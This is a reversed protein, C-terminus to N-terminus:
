ITKLKVINNVVDIIENNLLEKELQIEYPNASIIANIINMHDTESLKPIEILTNKTINRIIIDNNVKTIKLVCKEDESMELIFQILSYIDNANHNSHILGNVLGVVEDWNSILESLKFRFLADVSYEYIDRLAIKVMSIEHTRDCYVLASLLASNLYSEENFHIKKYLYEYKIYILISDIIINELLPKVIYLNEENTAVNIHHREKTEEIAYAINDIKNLSEVIFRYEINYKKDISIITQWM